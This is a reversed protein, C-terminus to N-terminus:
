PSEYQKFWFIYSFITIVIVALVLIGLLLSVGSKSAEGSNISNSIMKIYAKNGNFGIYVNMAPLLLKLPSNLPTEYFAFIILAIYAATYIVADLYMKRYAVWAAGFFFAAFNFGLKSNPNEYYKQWLSFYYDHEYGFYERIVAENNM